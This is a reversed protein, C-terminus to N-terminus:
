GERKLIIDFENVLLDDNTVSCFSADLKERKIPLEHWRLVRPTRCVLGAGEFLAVMESYRIRNTYFGSSRFLPSEWTAASFRLNNLGGGLHDKLDVRHVSIGGPKLVRFIEYAMQEFQAAPIHELVANSWCYDISM